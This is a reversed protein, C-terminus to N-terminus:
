REPSRLSIIQGAHRNLQMARDYDRLAAARDGLAGRLSARVFWPRWNGPEKRLAENAYSLGDAPSRLLAQRIRAEASWPLIAAARDAHQRAKEFTRGGDTTAQALEREGLTLTGFTLTLLIAISAVVAKTARAAVPPRRPIKHASSSQDPAGWPQLLAAAAVLAVLTVAPIEWVWDVAAAIGFAVIAGACAAAVYRDPASVGRSCRFMAWLLLLILAAFSAAGVLGLEALTELYHSHANRAIPGSRTDRNWILGFSGAGTGSVPSTAWASVATSWLEYRGRGSVSTLQDTPSAQAPQPQNDATTTKFNDILDDACGCSMVGIAGAVALLTVTVAARRRLSRVDIEPASKHGARRTVLAGGAASVIVAAMLGLAVSSGESRTAPQDILGDLLATFRSSYAALLIGPVVSIATLAALRVTPAVILMATVAGAAAIAGGRSATLYIVLVAVPVISVLTGRAIANRTAAALGINLPIAVAALAALANWYGIPYSLQMRSEALTQMDGPTPVLAPLLRSLAATLLVVGAAAAVGCLMARAGGARAAFLALLLAGVYLAARGFDHMGLEVSETWLLSIGTWVAFVAMALVAATALGSLDRRVSALIALALVGWVLMASEHSVAPEYGGARLGLDCVVVFAGTAAIARAKTADGIM